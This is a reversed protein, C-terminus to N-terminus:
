LAVPPDRPLGLLKSRAQGVTLLSGCVVTLACDWAAAADLAIIRGMGSTTGTVILVKKSSSM